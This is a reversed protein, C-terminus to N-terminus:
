KSSPATRACSRGWGAQEAMLLAAFKTPARHTFRCLTRATSRPMVTGGVSSAVASSTISYGLKQSNSCRSMDGQPVFRRVVIDAQIDPTPPSASIKHEIQAKGTKM